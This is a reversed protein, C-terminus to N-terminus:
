SLISVVSVFSFKISPCGVTDNSHKTFLIIYYLIIYIIYM